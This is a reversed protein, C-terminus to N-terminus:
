CSTMHTSSRTAVNLPRLASLPAMRLWSIPRIEGGCVDFYACRECCLAIGASSEGFIKQFKRTHVIDVILIEHVDGFIFDPHQASRNGLLEPCFTSFAGDFAVSV